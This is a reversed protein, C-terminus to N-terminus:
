VFTEILAVVAYALPISVLLCFIVCVILALWAQWKM